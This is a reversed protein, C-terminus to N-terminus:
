DVRENIFWILREEEKMWNILALSIFHLEIFNLPISNARQLLPRQGMVLLNWQDVSRSCFLFFFFSYNLLVLERRPPWSLEKNEKAKGAVALFVLTSTTPGKAQRAAKPQKTRAGNVFGFWNAKEKWELFSWNLQRKKWSLSLRELQNSKNM